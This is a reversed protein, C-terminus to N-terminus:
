SPFRLSGLLQDAKSLFGPFQDPPLAVSDIYIVVTKGRVNLVIVRFQESPGAFFADAFHNIDGFPMFVHLRGQDVEGDFQKGAFGGVRVSTTPRYAVHVVNARLQAVTHAVSRTPGYATMIVLMGRPVPVGVSNGGRAIAAWGFYPAGGTGHVLRASKWQAGTWGGGQPTLRISVPLQHATYAVGPSLPKPEDAWRDFGGLGGLLFSEPLERSSSGAALSSTGSCLLLAALGVLAVVGARTANM